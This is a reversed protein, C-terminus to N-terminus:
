KRTCKRGHNEEARASVVGIESGADSVVHIGDLLKSNRGITSDRITGPRSQACVRRFCLPLKLRALFLFDVKRPDTLSKFSIVEFQFGKVRRAEIEGLTKPAFRVKDFDLGRGVVSLQMDLDGVDDIGVLFTKRSIKPRILQRTLANMWPALKRAFRGQGGAQSSYRPRRLYDFIRKGLDIQRTISAAASAAYAKSQPAAV